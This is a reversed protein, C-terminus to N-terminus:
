VVWVGYRWQITTPTTSLEGVPDIRLCDTNVSSIVCEPLPQLNLPMDDKLVAQGIITVVGIEPSETVLSMIRSEEEVVPQHNNALHYLSGPVGGAAKVRCAVEFSLFQFLPRSEGRPSAASFGKRKEFTHLAVTDVQKPRQANGISVGMSWYCTSTAGTLFLGEGQEHLQSFCPSPFTQDVRGEESSMLLLDEKGLTHYISHGYRDGQQSFEVRVGNGIPTTVTLTAAPESASM